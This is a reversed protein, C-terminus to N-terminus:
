TKFEKHRFGFLKTKQNVFYDHNFSIIDLRDEHLIHMQNLYSKSRPYIRWRVPLGDFTELELDSRIVLLGTDSEIVSGFVAVGAKTISEGPMEIAEQLLNFFQGTKAIMKPSQKTAVSVHGQSFKYFKEDGGWSMGHMETKLFIESDEIFRDFVKTPPAYGSFEDDQSYDKWEYHMLGSAGHDSSNYVDTFSWNSFLSHAESIQYLQSDIVKDKIIVQLRSSDLASYEFLGDNGASIAIRGYENSCLSLADGDWVKTPRMSVAHKTGYSHCSASALGLSSIGYIKSNFIESDTQHIKFPNDQTSIKCDDFDAISIESKVDIARRFKDQLVANMQIDSLFKAVYDGYLYRGDMFACQLVLRLSEDQTLKTIIKDWEFVELRGDMFWLYLRNRYLQMDWFDGYISLKLTRMKAGSSDKGDLAKYYVARKGM